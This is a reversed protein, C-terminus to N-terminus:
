VIDNIMKCISSYNDSQINSLLMWNETHSVEQGPCIDYLPSLSEMEVMYNNTFIEYNCDGDPYLDESYNFRKLFGENNNIYLAWGQKTKVGIKLKKDVNMQKIKIHDNYINLRDDKFDTYPWFTMFRNPLLGTDDTNLPLIHTGGSAMCTLPWISLEVNESGLNKLIHTLKVNSGSCELEIEIIKQLNTEKEINQTIRIGNEIEEIQVPDNDPIYTRYVQEPSHWFRHGGYIQWTGYKTDRSEYGKELLHNFGDKFGYYLIRPGFDQSVILQIDENELSLCNEYEKFCEIKSIKVM